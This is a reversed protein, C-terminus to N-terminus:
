GRDRPSPSTYLLCCSIGYKSAVFYPKNLAPVDTEGNGNYGWCVVSNQDLVCAHASGSTIQSPSSFSPYGTYDLWDTNGWCRVGSDEIACGQFVSVSVSYNLVFDVAATSDSNEDSGDGDSGDGPDRPEGAYGTDM